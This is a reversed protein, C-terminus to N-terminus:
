AAELRHFSHLSELLAAPAAAAGRRGKQLPREELAVGMLRQLLGSLGEMVTELQFYLPLQALDVGRSGERGQPPM